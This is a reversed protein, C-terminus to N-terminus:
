TREIDVARGFVKIRHAAIVRNGSISAAAANGAAIGGVVGLGDIM